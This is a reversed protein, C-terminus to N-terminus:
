HDTLWVGKIVKIKWLSNCSKWKSGQFWRTSICHSSHPHKEPDHTTEWDDGIQGTSHSYKICKMPVLSIPLVPGLYANSIFQPNVTDYYSIPRLSLSLQTFSSPATLLATGCMFEEKHGQPPGCVPLVKNWAATHSLVISVEKRATYGMTPQHQM